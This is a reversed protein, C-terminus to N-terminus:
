PWRSPEPGDRPDRQAEAKTPLQIPQGQGSRTRNAAPAASSAAEARALPVGAGRVLELLQLKAASRRGSGVKESSGPTENNSRRHVSRVIAGGQPTGAPWDM